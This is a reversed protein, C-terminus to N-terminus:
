VRERHRCMRCYDSTEIGPYQTKCFECSHLKDYIENNLDVLRRANSVLISSDTRSFNLGFLQYIECAWGVDKPMEMRKDGFM